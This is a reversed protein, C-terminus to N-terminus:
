FSIDATEDKPEVLWSTIQVLLRKHFPHNQRPTLVLTGTKTQAEVKSFWPKSGWVFPESLDYVLKLSKSSLEKRTLEVKVEREKAGPLGLVAHTRRSDLMFTDIGFQAIRFALATDWQEPSPIDEVQYSGLVIATLLPDQLGSSGEDEKTEESKTKTMTMEKKAHLQELVDESGCGPCQFLLDNSLKALDFVAFRYRGCPDCWEPDEPHPESCIPDLQSDTPM